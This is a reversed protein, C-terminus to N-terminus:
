EKKHKIRFKAAPTGDAAGEDITLIADLSRALKFTPQYGIKEFSILIGFKAASFDGLHLGANVTQLPMKSQEGNYFARSLIEDDEALYEPETANANYNLGLTDGALPLADPIAEKKHNAYYLALNDHIQKSLGNSTKDAVKIGTVLSSKLIGKYIIYEIKPFNLDPQATPKLVINVLDENDKVAQVLIQGSTVAYAKPSGAGSHMSDIRYKQKDIAGFADSANQVAMVEPDTFFFFDAM